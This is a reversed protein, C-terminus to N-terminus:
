KNLMELHLNADWLREFSSQIISFLIKILQSYDGIQPNEFLLNELKILSDVMYNLNHADM